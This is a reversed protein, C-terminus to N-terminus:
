QLDIDGYKEKWWGRYFEEAIGIKVRELELYENEYDERFIEEVRREVDVTNYFRQLKSKTDKAHLITSSSYFMSENQNAGWGNAGYEEYATPSVMNLLRHIDWAATELHGIFNLLPYFKPEMRWQTIPSWHKDPCSPSSLIRHKIPHSKQIYKLQDQSVTAPDQILDLFGNFSHVHELCLVLLNYNDGAVDQCCKALMGPREGRIISTTVEGRKALDIMTSNPLHPRWMLFGSLAREKPDRVFLAKIWESSSLM